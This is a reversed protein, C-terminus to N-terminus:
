CHMSKTKTGFDVGVLVGVRYHRRVIKMPQRGSSNEAQASHTASELGDDATHLLRTSTGCELDLWIKFGAGEINAFPEQVSPLFRCWVRGAARYV